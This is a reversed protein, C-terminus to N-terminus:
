IKPSPAHILLLRARRPDHRDLPATDLGLSEARALVELQVGTAASFPVPGLGTSPVRGADLGGVDLIEQSVAGAHDHERAAHVLHQLYIWCGQGVQFLSGDDHMDGLGAVSGLNVVLEGLVARDAPEEM